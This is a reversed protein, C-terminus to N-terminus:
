SVRNLCEALRTKQRGNADFNEPALWAQYALKLNPWEGDLISFWATDRNRGKVVAAQRFLGEYTFGLRLAAAMSPANLANCKWECRRYGLSFVLDLWLYIAETATPTRQLLPSYALGGIEISGNEPDIRMLGGVGVARGSSTDCIAFYIPDVGASSKELQARYEAFDAFPGYALYTWMAGDADLANAGWLPEAHKKADLPELRCFRGELTTRPPAPPPTWGPLEEGLPLNM